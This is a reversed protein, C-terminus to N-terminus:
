TKAEAKIYESLTEEPTKYFDQKARKAELTDYKLALMSRETMDASAKATRDQKIALRIYEPDLETVSRKTGFQRQTMQAIAPVLAHNDLISKTARIFKSPFM